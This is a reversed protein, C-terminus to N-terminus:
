KKRNGKGKGEPKGSSSSSNLGMREMLEEVSLNAVPQSGTQAQGAEEARRQARREREQRLRRQALARRGDSDRGAARAMDPDEFGFVSRFSEMLEVFAPNDTFQKIMEEAEAALEQPRLEGRRIKDQLRKAIRKMANQLVEPRRTYVNMLMEFARQPNADTEGLQAADLGFDEPKFERVLEEALKALQGKLFREPLKFGGEGSGFLGMMKESLSKFDVKSLKDKWQSLMEDMWQKAPGNGSLDSMWPNSPDGFMLLFGLLTVYEYIVKQTNASFSAWHVEEIVVGPLVPGPCVSPNQRHASVSPLVEARFRETRERENLSLAAQIERAKEPYTGILDECFETYKKQFISDLSKEESM